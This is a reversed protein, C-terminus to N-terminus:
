NPPLRDMMWFSITDLLGDPIRERELELDAEEHIRGNEPIFFHGLEPFLDIIVDNAGNRRLHDELASADAVTVQDDKWGQLILIPVNRALASPTADHNSAAMLVIGRVGQIGQIEPMQLAADGGEGHGVIFLQDSDVLWHGAILEMAAVADKLIEEELPMGASEFRHPFLYTRKDFRYSAIGRGALGRALERMPAHADILGDRDLPGADQLLLATPFPGEGDPLCLTGTLILDESHFYSEMERYGIPEAERARSRYLIEGDRSLERLEFRFAQTFISAQLVWHGVKSLLVSIETQGMRLTLTEDPIDVPMLQGRDDEFSEPPIFDGGLTIVVPYFVLSQPIAAHALPPQGAPLSWLYTQMQSTLFNDLLVSHEPRILDRGRSEGMASAWIHLSDSDFRATVRQTDGQVIARYNYSVPAGARNYITEQEFPFPTGGLHVEGRSELKWGGARDAEWVAIEHGMQRGLHMFAYRAELRSGEMLPLGAPAPGLYALLLGLSLSILYIMPLLLRGTHTSSERGTVSMRGIFRM